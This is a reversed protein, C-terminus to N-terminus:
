SSTRRDDVRDVLRRRDGAVARHGRAVRRVPFLDRGQGGRGARAATRRAAAKTGRIRPHAPGLGRADGDAHRDAIARRPQRPHSGHRLDRGDDDHARYRGRRRRMARAHRVARPGPAETTISGLLLISGRMGSADPEQERMARVVRACVLVQTRLNLAATAGLRGRHAHPDPRRRVTPWQWRGGLVARRAARVARGRRDRGCRGGGEDTLDAAAWGADPLREALARAHGADRSTVFIRAGEAAAREATAAAIGTSGTVLIARDRLRGTSTM